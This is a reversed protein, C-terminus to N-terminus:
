ALFLMLFNRRQTVAFFSDRRRNSWQSTQKASDSTAMMQRQAGLLTANLEEGYNGHLIVWGWAFDHDKATISNDTKNM